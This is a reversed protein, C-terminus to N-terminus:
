VDSMIDLEHWVEPRVHVALDSSMQHYESVMKGLLVVVDAM